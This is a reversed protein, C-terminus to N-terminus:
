NCLPGKKKIKHYESDSLGIQSRIRAQLKRLEPTSLEDCEIATDFVDGTLPDVAYSGIMMSGDPLGAWVADLTYYEGVPVGENELDVEFKPLKRTKPPTAAIVLSKAEDVSVMRPRDASFAMDSLITAGFILITLLSKRM